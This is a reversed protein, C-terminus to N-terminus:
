VIICSCQFLIQWAENQLFLTSTEYEDVFLSTFTLFTELARKKFVIMTVNGQRKQVSCEVNYISIWALSMFIEMLDPVIGEEVLTVEVELNDIVDFAFVFPFLYLQSQLFLLFVDVSIM